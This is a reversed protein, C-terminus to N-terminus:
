VSAALEAILQNVRGPAELQPFHGVGPIIEIRPNSTRSGLLELWPSTDGQRLSLRKREANIWTSQIVMLPARVAALAADLQTVDWRVMRTWLEIGTEVPMRKM